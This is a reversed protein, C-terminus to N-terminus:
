IRMQWPNDLEPYAAARLIMSQDIYYQIFTIAASVTVNSYSVYHLHMM